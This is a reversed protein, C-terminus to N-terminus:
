QDRGEMRKNIETEEAEEEKAHREQQDAVWQGFPGDPPYEETWFKTYDFDPSNVDMYPPLPHMVVLKAENEVQTQWDGRLKATLRNLEHEFTERLGVSKEHYQDIVANAGTGEISQEGLAAGAEVFFVLGAEVAGAPNMAMLALLMEKGISLMVKDDRTRQQDIEYNACSAIARALDYYQQRMQYALVFMGGLAQLGNLIAQNQTETVFTGIRGLHRRFADAAPGR